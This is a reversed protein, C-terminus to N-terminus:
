GGAILAEAAKNQVSEGELTTDGGGKGKGGYKRERDREVQEFWSGLKEEDLWISRPPREEKPLEGFGIFILAMRIAEFLRHPMDRVNAVGEPLLEAM